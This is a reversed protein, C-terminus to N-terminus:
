ATQGWVRMLRSTSFCLVKQGKGSYLWLCARACLWVFLVAFVYACMFILIVFFFFLGCANMVCVYCM